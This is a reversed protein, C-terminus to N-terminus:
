FPRGVRSGRLLYTKRFTTKTETVRSHAEIGPFLQALLTKTLKAMSIDPDTLDSVATTFAKVSETFHVNGSHARAALFADVHQITIDGMNTFSHCAPAQAM